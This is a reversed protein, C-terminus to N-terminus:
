DKESGNKGFILNYLNSKFLNIRNFATFKVTGQRDAIEKYSLKDIRLRVSELVCPKTIKALKRMKDFFINEKEKEDAIDFPTREYCISKLDCSNNKSNVNDLSAVETNFKPNCLYHRYFDIKTQNIKRYLLKRFDERGKPMGRREVYRWFAGFSEQLLDEPEFFKRGFVSIKRAYGLYQPYDDEIAKNFAERVPTAGCILDSM